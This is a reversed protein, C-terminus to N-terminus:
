GRMSGRDPADGNRLLMLQEQARAHAFRRDVPGGSLSRRLLRAGSRLLAVVEIRRHAAPTAALPACLEL